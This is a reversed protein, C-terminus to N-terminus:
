LVKYLMSTTIRSVEFKKLAAEFKKDKKSLETLAKTASDFKSIYHVYLKLFPALQFLVLGLEEREDGRAFVFM